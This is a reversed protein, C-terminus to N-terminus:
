RLGASRRAAVLEEYAALIERAVNGVEHPSLDPRQRPPRAAVLRRIADAMAPVDDIPVLTGPYKALIESPGQAATALVPTGADLAELIVRGMPESRSPCVFLDFCPYYDKANKRFGTFTVRGGALAELKAKQSGDGVVVLRAGAPAAQLFARILTDFGKSQVLRGVGGILFDAAKAGCEERLRAIEAPAVTPHPVLSNPIEFSKGRYTALDERQWAAILILGDMQLFQPGNVRLHLTAVTACGPALRALLRTARRLHAHVIDPGFDAVARKLGAGAFWNGVEYVKVRPDLFDVISAGSPGRHGRRIVLAVDHEAVHANCTETTSRETGAFGSSLCVHM